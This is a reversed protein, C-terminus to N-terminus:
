TTLKPATFVRLQSVCVKRQKDESMGGAILWSIESYVTPSLFLRIRDWHTISNQSKEETKRRTTKTARAKESTEVSTFLCTIPKSPKERRNFNFYYFWIMKLNWVRRHKKDRWILLYKKFSYEHDATKVAVRKLGHTKLLTNIENFENLSHGQTKWASM